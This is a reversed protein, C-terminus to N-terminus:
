AVTVVPEGEKEREIKAFLRVADRAKARDRTKKLQRRRQVIEATTPPSGVHWRWVDAAKQAAPHDSFALATVAAEDAAMRRRLQQRLQDSGECLVALCEACVLTVRADAQNGVMADCVRLVVELCNDAAARAGKETRTLFELADLALAEDGADLLAEVVRAVAAHGLIECAVAPRSALALGFAARGRPSEAVNRIVLVVNQRLDAPTDPAALAALARVLGADAAVAEKGSLATTILSLAGAARRRNSRHPSALAEGLAAAAGEGIALEKNADDATVNWLYQLAHRASGLSLADDAPFSRLLRVVLAVTDPSAAMDYQSLEALAALAANAAAPDAASDKDALLAILAAKAEKLQRNAEPFRAAAAVLRCAETRTEADADRVAELVAPLGAPLVAERGQRLAVLDTLLRLLEARPTSALPLSQLAAASLGRNIAVIKDEPRSVWERLRLVDAHSPPSGQAADRVVTDLTHLFPTTM